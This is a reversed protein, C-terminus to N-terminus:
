HQEAEVKSKSSFIGSRKLKINKRWELMERKKETLFKDDYPMEGALDREGHSTLFRIKKKTPNAVKLIANTIDEESIGPIKSEREGCKIVLIDTATM